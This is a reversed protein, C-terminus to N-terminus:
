AIRKNSVEAVNEVKDEAESNSPESLHAETPPEIQSRGKGHENRRKCGDGQSESRNPNRNRTTTKPSKCPVENGTGGGHRSGKLLLAEEQNIDKVQFMELCEVVQSMLPRVKPNESLCLYALHAVKLASRPSFQGEMKPDLIKLLKKKHNLLPRAWEVLNHEPGLKGKDM